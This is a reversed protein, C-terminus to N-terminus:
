RRRRGLREGDVDGRVVRDLALREGAVPRLERRRRGVADGGTQRHRLELLEDFAAVRLEARAGADGVRLPEDHALGHEPRGDELLPLRRRTRGPGATSRRSRRSRTPRRSRSRPSRARWTARRGRGRRGRASRPCATGAPFSGPPASTEGPGCAPTDARELAATDARAPSGCRAPRARDRGRCRARASRRAARSRRTDPWASGPRRGRRVARRPDDRRQVAGVDREDAAIVRIRFRHREGDLLGVAHGGHRLAEAGVRAARQRHLLSIATM